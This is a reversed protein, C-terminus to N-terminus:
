ICDDYADYASVIAIQSLIKSIWIVKVVCRVRARGVTPSSFDYKINTQLRAFPSEFLFRVRVPNNVHRNVFASFCIEVRSAISTKERQFASRVIPRTKPGIPRCIDKTRGAREGRGVFSVGNGTLGPFFVHGFRGAYVDYVHAFAVRWRHRGGYRGVNSFCFFFFM